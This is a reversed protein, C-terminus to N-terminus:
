IESNIPTVVCESDEIYSIAKEREEKTAKRAVDEKEWQLREYVRPLRYAKHQRIEEAEDRALEEQRRFCKRWLERDTVSISCEGEDEEERRREEVDRWVEQLMRRARINDAERRLHCMEEEHRMIREEEEEDEKKHRWIREAEEMAAIRDKEAKAAIREEDEIAAIREKETKAAIREEDEIAAIREKEVKAAIREDDETADIREKEAKAAIREEDEIADIREEEAKKEQSIRIREDRVVAQKALVFELLEKGAFNMQKGLDILRPTEMIFPDMVFLNEISLM